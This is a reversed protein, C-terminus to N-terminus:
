STRLGALVELSLEAVNHRTPRFGVLARWGQYKGLEENVRVKVKVRMQEIELRKASIPRYDM